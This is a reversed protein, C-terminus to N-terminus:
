RRRPEVACGDLYRDLDGLDFRVSRGVRYVKIRHQDVLRRLTAPHVALYRAATATDILKRTGTM